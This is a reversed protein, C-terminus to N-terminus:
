SIQPQQWRLAAAVRPKYFPNLPISDHSFFADSFARNVMLKAGATKECSM